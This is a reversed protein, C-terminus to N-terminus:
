GVVANRANLPETRIEALIVEGPVIASCESVGLRAPRRAALCYSHDSPPHRTAAGVEESPPLYSKDLESDNV